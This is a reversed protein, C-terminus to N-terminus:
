SVKIQIPVVAPVQRDTLECLAHKVVYVSKAHMFVVMLYFLVVSKLFM